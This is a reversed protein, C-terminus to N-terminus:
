AYRALFEIAATRDSFEATIKDGNSYRIQIEYKYVKVTVSAAGYNSLFNIAEAVTSYEMEQGHLPIVVIKEIRQSVTKDLAGFFTAIDKQHKGVLHSAVSRKAQKSM